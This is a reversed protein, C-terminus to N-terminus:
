LYTALTLAIDKIFQQIEADVADRVTLVTIVPPLYHPFFTVKLWTSVKLFSNYYM